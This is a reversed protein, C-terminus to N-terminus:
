DRGFRADVECSLAEAHEACYALQEPTYNAFYEPDTDGPRMTLFGMIAAAANDGDISHLPSCGFDEGTFLVTRGMRLEYGLMNKGYETRNADWVKLRFVPGMGKRYPRFVFRRLLETM